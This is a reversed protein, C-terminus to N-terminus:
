QRSGSVRPPRREPRGPRRVARRHPMPAQDLKAVAARISGLASFARKRLIANSDRMLAALVETFRPDGSEGMVWAATARFMASEHRAMTMLEPIMASDGLRYLGLIANGSVRNNPDHVLAQLLERAEETDVGWLGEIANARIRPDNDELRHRVWKTSRSGRGIMLVAKSRVNRDSHRLLRVLSPFIRTGDSVESLVDMVRGAQETGLAEESGTLGQVLARALTVDAVSDHAMAARALELAAERTLGPDILAELLLGSEALLAILFHAGASDAQKKLIATAGRLFATSDEALLQRILRKCRVTDRDLNRVLGELNARLASDTPDM